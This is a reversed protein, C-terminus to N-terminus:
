PIGDAPMTRLEPFVERAMEYRHDRHVLLCGNVLALAAILVDTAPVTVGQRRLGLIWVSTDFLYLPRNM